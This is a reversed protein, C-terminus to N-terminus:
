IIFYKRDYQHIFSGTLFDRPRFLLYSDYVEMLFGMGANGYESDKNWMGLSPVNISHIRGVEEYTNESFGRHLHGTILFVNERSNLIERLQDSQKGVAGREDGPYDWSHPLNHTRRLPQHLIVFVPKGNGAARDLERKLWRFEAEDFYCDEFETRVTGLVIFTYGEIDYSYYLNETNINENVKKCFASFKKKSHEIHRFRTDHNGSAPIVCRVSTIQRLKEAVYEKEAQKGNEALDGAIVLADVTDAANSLDIMATRCRMAREPSYFASFHLDSWLVASLRINDKDSIAIPDNKAPVVMPLAAM